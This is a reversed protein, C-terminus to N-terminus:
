RVSPANQTTNLLTQSLKAEDFGNIRTEDIFILPIGNGRLAKYRQYAANDHEIDYETFHIRHKAFFLRAKQCYPCWQTAYMTVTPAPTDVFTITKQETSSFALFILTCLCLIIFGFASLTKM